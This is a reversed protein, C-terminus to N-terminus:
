NVSPFSASRLVVSIQKHVSVIFLITEHLHVTLAVIAAKDEVAHVVGGAGCVVGARLGHVWCLNM